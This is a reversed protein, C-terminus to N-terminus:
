PIMNDATDLKAVPMTRAIPKAEIPLDNPLSMEDWRVVQNRGNHKAAYLCKDAQDLM